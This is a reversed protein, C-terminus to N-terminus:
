HRGKLFNKFDKIMHETAFRTGAKMESDSPLPIEKEQIYWLLAATSIYRSLWGVACIITTLIFFAM